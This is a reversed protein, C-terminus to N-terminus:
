LVEVAPIVYPHDLWHRVAIPEVHAARISVRGLIPHNIYTDRHTHTHKNKTEYRITESTSSNKKKKRKPRQFLIFKKWSKLLTLQVIDGEKTPFEFKLSDFFVSRKLPIRDNKSKLRLEIM